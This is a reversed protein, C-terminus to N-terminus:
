GGTTPIATIRCRSPSVFSSASSRSSRAQDAGTQGSGAPTAQGIERSLGDEARYSESTM